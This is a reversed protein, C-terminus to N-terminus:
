LDCAAAIREFEDAPLQGYRRLGPVERSEGVVSAGVSVIVADRAVRALIEDLAKRCAAIFPLVADYARHMQQWVASTVLVIRERTSLACHQRAQDRDHASGRQRQEFLRYKITEANRRPDPSVIPSPQRLQSYRDVSSDRM